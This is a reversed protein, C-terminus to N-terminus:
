EEDEDLEDLRFAKRYEPWRSREYSQELEDAGYKVEIHSDCLIQGRRVTAMCNNESCWTGGEIQIYLFRAFATKDHRIARDVWRLIKAETM